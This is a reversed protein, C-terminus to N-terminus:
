TASRATCRTTTLSKEDLVPKAELQGDASLAPGLHFDFPLYYSRTFDVAPLIAPSGRRGSNDRGTLLSGVKLDSLKRTILPGDRRAFLFICGSGGLFRRRRPQM